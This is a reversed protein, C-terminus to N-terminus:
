EEEPPPVRGTRLGNWLLVVAAVLLIIIIIFPASVCSETNPKTDKFNLMISTSNTYGMDDMARVTIINKGSKLQIKGTWSTTGNCAFWQIGDICMEVKIVIGDDMATGAVNIFKKYLITGNIPTLINISPIIPSFNISVSEITTRDSADTAKVQIINIGLKLTVNKSWNNMGICDTWDFGDLNLEVSKIWADDLATGTVTINPMTIITRNSPNLIKITPPLLDVTINVHSFTHRGAIDTACVLISVAGPPPTVNGAWSSTGNCRSWIIGDYSIEVRDIVTDDSANGVIMVPASSLLANELPSTINLSPPRLDVWVTISTECARGVFDTARADLKRLGSSMEVNASWSSNGSCPSWNGEARIEVASIGVDDEAKGSANVNASTLIAGQAPVEITVNPGSLDYTVNVATENRWGAFDTARARIVNKGPQLTLNLEWSTTGNCREWEGNNAKLEVDKVGVDDSSIGMVKIEGTDMIKDNEPVTISVNPATMDVVAIM